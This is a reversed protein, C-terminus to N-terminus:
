GDTDLRAPSLPAGLASEMAARLDAERFPKQLFRAGGSRVRIPAGSMFVHPVPGARLIEQVATIGSGRGLAADVIMIDPRCRAAAAIAEAQTTEISCVAHTMGAIMDALLTALLADDDVVLM